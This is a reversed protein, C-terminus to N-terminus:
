HGIIIGELSLVWAHRVSMGQASEWHLSCIPLSTLAHHKSM